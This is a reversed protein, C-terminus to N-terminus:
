VYVVFKYIFFNWLVMPALAILKAPRADVDGIDVLLFLLGTIIMLNIMDVIFYRGLHKLFDDKKRFVVFKHMLFAAFFGLVGGIINAIIYWIGVHLLLFYSGIDVVAATCGCVIYVAFKTLHPFYQRMAVLTGYLRGM